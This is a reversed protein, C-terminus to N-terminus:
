MLKAYEKEPTKAWFDEPVAYRRVGLWHSGLGLLIQFLTSSPLRVDDYPARTVFIMRTSGAVVEMEVVM